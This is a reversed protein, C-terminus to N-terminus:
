IKNILRLYKMGDHAIDCESISSICNAKNM